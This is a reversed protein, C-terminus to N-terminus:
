VGRERRTRLLTLIGSRIITKNVGFIYPMINTKPSVNEYERIESAFKFNVDYKSIFHLFRDMVSVFYPDTMCSSHLYIHFIPMSKYHELFSAKLWRLGVVPTAEPTVEGGRWLQSVPIILLPCDGAKQYDNKDPHYPPCLRPLKSWDCYDFKKRQSASCDHTIGVKVLARITYNNVSWKGAVFVKIDYGLTDVLCDIGTKVMELQERYPYDRLASSRVSTDCHERIYADISHLHLGIEHNVGKPFHKVTEPMVAFTVKADHKNAIRILNRVGDRVGVVTKGDNIVGKNKCWGYETHCVIIVDMDFGEGEKFYIIHMSM